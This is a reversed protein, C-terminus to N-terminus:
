RKLRGAERVLDRFWRQAPDRESRSHWHMSVDFSDAAVPMESIELGAIKACSEALRRPVAAVGRFGPLLFPITRSNSTAMFVFRDAGKDALLQDISGTLEGHMSIAIHPLALYDAMRLPASVGCAKEDFLCVYEDHFLVETQPAEVPESFYGIALDIAGNELPAIVGTRDLTSVRIRARPAASRVSALVAPLIAVEAYDTAGVLFTTEATQPEFARDALVRGRIDALISSISNALELARSTPQMSGSTRVFLEDDFLERLRALAHSMAPQGIRVRQAARTVNREAMLADFAVLLNLDFLRLDTM